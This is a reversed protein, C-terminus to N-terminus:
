RIYQRVMYRRSILQPYQLISSLRQWRHEVGNAGRTPVHMKLVIDELVDMDTAFGQEIQQDGFAFAANLDRDDVIGHARRSGPRIAKSPQLPLPNVQQGEMGDIREFPARRIGQITAVM